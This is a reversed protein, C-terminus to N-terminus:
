TVPSAPHRLFARRHPPLAVPRRPFFPYRANTCSIMSALPWLRTFPHTAEFRVRSCLASTIWPSPLPRAVPSIDDACCPIKPQPAEPLSVARLRRCNPLSPSYSLASCVLKSSSRGALIEGREFGLKRLQHGLRLRDRRTLPRLARRQRRLQPTGLNKVLGLVEDARTVALAHADAFIDALMSDSNYSRAGIRSSDHNTHLAGVVFQDGKHRCDM